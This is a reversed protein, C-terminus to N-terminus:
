PLTFGCEEAVIALDKNFGIKKSFSRMIQPFSGVENDSAEELLILQFLIQNDIEVERLSARYLRLLLSLKSDTQAKKEIDPLANLIGPVNTAHKIIRDNPIYIKVGSETKSKAFACLQTAPNASVVSM